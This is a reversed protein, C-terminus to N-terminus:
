RITCPKLYSYLPNMPPLVPYVFSALCVSTLQASLFPLQELDDRTAHNLDLPQGALHELLEYSDLLAEGTEDDADGADMVEDYVEQWTQAKASQITFVLLFLLFLIRAAM